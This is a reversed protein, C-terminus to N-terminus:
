LRESKGGVGAGEVTQGSDLRRANRRRHAVIEALISLAIESPEIANIDIGAPASLRALATESLGQERLQDKMVGAKKASGVFAVYAAPSSLAAALAERDRKGQTAVVVFDRGGPELRDLDFGDLLRDVEGAFRAHDETLAAAEVRYGLRRALSALTVAVPSAGCVILRAPRRMPEIFLDVTGGSPCGSKHLEVGDVDVATVVEERPKVRILRAEGSALADRAAQQIAGQVCGGGLYGEIWGDGRVVAKAGAKASTANETRVVTAVCFEEGRQTLENILGLIDDGVYTM